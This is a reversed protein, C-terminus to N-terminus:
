DTSLVKLNFDGAISCENLLQTRSLFKVDTHTTCTCLEQTEMAVSAYDVGVIIDYQLKLQMNMHHSM